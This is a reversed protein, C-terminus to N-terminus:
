KGAISQLIAYNCVSLLWGIIFADTTKLKFHNAVILGAGCILVSAGLALIYLGMNEEKKIVEMILWIKQVDKVYLILIAKTVTRRM